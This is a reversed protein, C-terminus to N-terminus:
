LDSGGSFEVVYSEQFNDLTIDLRYDSTYPINNISIKINNARSGFIKSKFEILTDKMSYEVLLDHNKEDDKNLNGDSLKYFGLYQYAVDSWFKLVDGEISVNYGESKLYDSISTLQSGVDDGEVRHSGRFYESAIPSTDGYYILTNYNEIDLLPIALFDGSQMKSGLKLTYALTYDEDLILKGLGEQTNNRNNYIVTSIPYSYPINKSNNIRLSYTPYDLPNSQKSLCLKIGSKVLKVLSVYNESDKYFLDLLELSDVINWGEPGSKSRIVSTVFLDRNSIQPLRNSAVKGKVLRTM